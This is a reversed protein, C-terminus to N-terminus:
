PAGLAHEVGAWAQARAAQAELASVRADVLAREADLVALLPTRGVVYAEETAKAAAQAAPV